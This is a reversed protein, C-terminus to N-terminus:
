PIEEGIKIPKDPQGDEPFGYDQPPFEPELEVKMAAMAWALMVYHGVTFVFDMLQQKDLHRALEEWTGNEIQSQACLQDVASLCAREVGPWNPAEAGQKVAEFDKEGFGIERALMVHHVWEYPARYLWAVRLTVIERLRDPLSSARLLHYGFGYYAKALAPYNALTMDLTSSSGIKRRQPAETTASFVERAERTWEAYPLPPIRPGTRTM